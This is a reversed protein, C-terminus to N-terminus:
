ESVAEAPRVDQKTRNYRVLVLGILIGGMSVLSSLIAMQRPISLTGNPTNNPVIGPNSLFGVNLALM